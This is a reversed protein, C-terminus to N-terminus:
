AEDAKGNNTAKKVSKWEFSLSAAWAICFCALAVRFADKLGIVYAQIVNELQESQGLSQLVSQVQTAGSEVIASVPVSPAYTQLGKRLGNTFVSDTVTIFISAGLSQTFIGVVSAVPIWKAPVGSQIALVPVQFGAGVGLGCLVQYGFWQREPTTADFTTILGAGIAMMTASFVLIPKYYGIMSVLAGAVISSLVTALQLPLMHIGSSIPSVGKVSQFYIAIYYILSFFGGGFFFTFLAATWVSRVKVVKPPLTAKNGQHIQSVIFILIMVGAGCLLGIIHSNPWPYTMGGWQLALLLMIIAPILMSAGILDLDLIRQIASKEAKKIEPLTIVLAVIFSILGLPLNIYFCWRWSVNDTFAGGILPGAIAALAWVAGFAGFGLGRKELPMCFSVIVLGGSYLGGSGLGAIARGIILADISPAAGCIASGLEFLLMSALFSWRVNYTTYIRGWTPQFACSTLFYASGLWGIDTLANFEDTIKPIATSIITRDLAVLFIGTCLGFLIFALKAGSPYIIDSDEPATEPADCAEGSPKSVSRDIFKEASPEANSDTSLQMKEPTIERKAM